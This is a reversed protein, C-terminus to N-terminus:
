CEFDYVCLYEIPAQHIYSNAKIDLVSRFYVPPIAGSETGPSLIVQNTSIYFPIKHQSYMAKAMNVEVVVECSNRMGSIVGDKNMAIAMHVHNRAMKNLGGKMILPLPEKYTGHLVTSFIFPNEIPTLLDETKVAELTHGQAARIYNLGNENKVDYRKKENNNVIENILDLSVKKNGRNLYQLLDDILVWGGSDM